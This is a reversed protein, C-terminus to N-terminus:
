ETEPMMTNEGVVMHFEIPDHNDFTLIAPFHTGHELDQKLDVLRLHFEDSGVVHGPAIEIHPVINGNLMIETHRAAETKVGTFRLVMDGENSLTPYASTAAGTKGPEVWPHIIQIAGANVSHAHSHLVPHVLFGFAVAFASVVLKLRATM